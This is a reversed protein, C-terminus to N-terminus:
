VDEAESITVFDDGCADFIEGDWLVIIRRERLITTGTGGVHQLVVGVTNPNKPGVWKRSAPIRRMAVPRLFGRYGSSSTRVLEGDSGTRLVIMDGVAPLDSM